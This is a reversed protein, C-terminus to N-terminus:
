RKRNTQRALLSGAAVIQSLQDMTLGDPGGLLRLSKARGEWYAMEHGLLTELVKGLDIEVVSGPPRHPFVLVAALAAAHLDLMRAHDMDGTISVLEPDPEPMELWEAFCPMAERLIEVVSTAVVTQPLEEIVQDAEAVLDRVVGQSGQLQRWWDGAQRALLLVRLASGEDKATARLLEPLGLRTEAYDVILLLRGSTVEREKAVVDAEQDQDVWICRWGLPELQSVLQV